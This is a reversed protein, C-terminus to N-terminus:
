LVPSTTELISRATSHGYTMFTYSSSPYHLMMDVLESRSRRVHEQSSTPLVIVSFYYNLLHHILESEIGSKFFSRGPSPSRGRYPVISNRCSPKEEGCKVKRKRCTFCGTKARLMAKTM